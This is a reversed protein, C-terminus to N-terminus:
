FHYLVGITVADSDIDQNDNVFHAADVDNAINIYDIFISLNDLIKYSGGLGWQFDTDDADINNGAHTGSIDFGGFGLLGYVKIDETVPYQPKLYIGWSTRDLIDEEAISVMYRGEVALYENFDYGAVLSIDGTRDQGDTVSFFDQSAERTSVVSLGIGVYFNNTAVTEPIVAVPEVEKTINGGAFLTTGFLGLGILFLVVKKMIKGEGKKFNIKRNYLLKILLISITKIPVLIVAGSGGMNKLYKSRRM